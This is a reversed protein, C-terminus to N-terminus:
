VEGLPRGGAHPPENLISARNLLLDVVRVDAADDPNGTMRYAYRYIEREHRDVLELFRTSRAM